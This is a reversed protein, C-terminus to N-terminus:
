RILKVGMKSYVGQVAAFHKEDVADDDSVYLVTVDNGNKTLEFALNEYAAADQIVASDTAVARTSKASKVGIM